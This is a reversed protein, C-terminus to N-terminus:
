CLIVPSAGTSYIKIKIKGKLGPNLAQLAGLLHHAHVQGASGAAFAFSYNGGGVPIPPPMAQGPPAVLPPYQQMPMTITDPYSNRPIHFGLFELPIGLIQFDSLLTHLIHTQYSNM